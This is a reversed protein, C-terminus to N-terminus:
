TSLSCPKLPFIGLLALSNVAKHPSSHSNKQRKKMGYEIQGEMWKKEIWLTCDIIIGITKEKWAKQWLEKHFGDTSDLKFLM